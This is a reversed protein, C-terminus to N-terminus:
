RLTAASICLVKEAMHDEFRFGTMKIALNIDSSYDECSSLM